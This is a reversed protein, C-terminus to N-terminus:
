LRVCYPCTRRTRRPRVRWSTSTSDLVCPCQTNTPAQVRPTSRVALKFRVAQSQARAAPLFSTTSPCSSGSTRPGRTRAASMCTRHGGSFLFAISGRDRIGEVTPGAQRRHAFGDGLRAALTTCQRGRFRHRQLAMGKRITTIHIYGLMCICECEKMELHRGIRIQM